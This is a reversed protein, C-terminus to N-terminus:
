EMGEVLGLRVGLVAVWSSTSKMDFVGKEREIELGGSLTVLWFGGREEWIYGYVSKVHGHLLGIWLRMRLLRVRCM